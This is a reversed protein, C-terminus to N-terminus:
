RFLSVPELEYAVIVLQLRDRAGLERCDPVPPPAWRCAAAGQGDLVPDRDAFM